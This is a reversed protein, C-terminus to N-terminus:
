PDTMATLQPTPPLLPQVGVYSPSHYLGAASAGILSKAKLAEMYWPHLGLFLCVFLYIFLGFWIKEKALTLM